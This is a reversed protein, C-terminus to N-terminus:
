CEESKREFYQKTLNKYKEEARKVPYPDDFGLVDFALELASLGMTNLAYNSGKINPRDAFQMVMDLLAYELDNIRKDKKEIKRKYVDETAKGAKKLCDIEKDKEKLMTLVTEICDIEEQNITQKNGKLFDKNVRVISKCREIAEQEKTM